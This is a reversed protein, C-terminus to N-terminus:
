IAYRRDYKNLAPQLKDDIFCGLIVSGVSLLIPAIWKAVIDVLAHVPSKNKFIKQVIRM